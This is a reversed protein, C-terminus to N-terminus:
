ALGGFDAVDSLWADFDARLFTRVMPKGAAGATEFMKVKDGWPMAAISLANQNGFMGYPVPLIVTNKNRTLELQSENATNTQLYFTITEDLTSYNGPPASETTNTSAINSVEAGTSENIVVTRDEFLLTFNGSDIASRQVACQSSTTPLVADATLQVSGVETVAGTELTIYGTYLTDPTTATDVGWIYLRDNVSDYWNTFVGIWQDNAANLDAVDVTWIISTGLRGQYPQTNSNYPVEVSDILTGKHPVINGDTWVLGEDNLPTPMQPFSWPSGGGAAFPIDFGM